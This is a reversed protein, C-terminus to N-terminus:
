EAAAPSVSFFLRGRRGAGLFDVRVWSVLNWNFVGAIKYDPGTGAKLWELAAKYYARMFKRVDESQQWPDM